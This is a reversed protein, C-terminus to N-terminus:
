EIELLIEARSKEEFNSLDHQIDVLISQLELNNSIHKYQDIISNAMSKFSSTILIDNDDGNRLKRCIAYLEGGIAILESLNNADICKYVGALYSLKYYYSIYKRGIAYKNMINDRFNYATDEDFKTSATLIGASLGRANLRKEFCGSDLIVDCRTTWNETICNGKGGGCSACSPDSPPLKSSSDVIRKALVNIPNSNSYGSRPIEFFLCTNSNYENAFFLIDASTIYDSEMSYTSIESVVGSHVSFLQFYLKNNSLFRVTAIATISDYIQCSDVERTYIIFCGADNSIVSSSQLNNKVENIFAALTDAIIESHYITRLEEGGDTRAFSIEANNKQIVNKYLNIIPTRIGLVNITLSENAGERPLSKKQCSFLYFVVLTLATFLFNALNLHKRM